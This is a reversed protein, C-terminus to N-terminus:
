ILCAELFPVQWLNGPFQGRELIHLLRTSSPLSELSHTILKETIKDINQSCPYSLMQSLFILKKKKKREESVYM